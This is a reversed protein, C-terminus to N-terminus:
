MVRRLRLYIFKLSFRSHLISSCFSPYFPPCFSLCAGLCHSVRVSLVSLCIHITCKYYIDSEVPILNSNILSYPSKHLQRMRWLKCLTCARRIARNRYWNVYHLYHFMIIVMHNRSSLIRSYLIRHYWHQKNRLLVDSSGRDHFKGRSAIYYGM